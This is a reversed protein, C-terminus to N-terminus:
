GLLEGLVKVKCLAMLRKDEVGAEVGGGGRWGECVM